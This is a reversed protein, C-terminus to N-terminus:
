RPPQQAMPQSPREDPQLVLRDLGEGALVGARLVEGLPRGRVQEIVLGLLVYNTSSYEFIEGPSCSCCPSRTV